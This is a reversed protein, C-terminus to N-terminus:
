SHATVTATATGISSSSAGSTRITWGHSGWRASCVVAVVGLSGAFKVARKTASSQQLAEHKKM